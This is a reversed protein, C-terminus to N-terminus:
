MDDNSQLDPMVEPHSSFRNLIMMSNSKQLIVSLTKFASNISRNAEFGRRVARARALKTVIHIATKTLTGMSELSFPLLIMGQRAVQEGMRQLKREAALAAAAGAAEANKAIIDGRVTSSIVVDVLADQYGQGHGQDTFAGLMVDGPRRDSGPVLFRPERVPSLGAESSLRMLFERINDHRQIREPGYGCHMAHDANKGAKQNCAPCTYDSDYVPEGLQYKIIASFQESRMFWGARRNPYVNLFGRSYPSCLANIRAAERPSESVIEKLNQLRAQDIKHSLIKQSTGCLLDALTIEEGAAASLAALVAPKLLRRAAVEAVDTQAEGGDEHDAEPGDDPDGAEAGGRGDEDHRGVEPDDAEAGGRGDEDEIHRNIEDDDGTESGHRETQDAGTLAIILDLSSIVSASYAATQHDYANRLGLGSCSVPLTAQFHGTNSLCCGLLDNLSNRTVADFRHLVEPHDLCPVTRLLYGMKTIALTSRLLCYQTQSEQLRPLLETTLAIKDVADTLFQKTFAPSGVVSGLIKIGDDHVLRTGRGLPDTDVGAEFGRARWLKTKGRGAGVTHDTSLHMGRAPGLETIIDLAARLDETNGAFCGDDMMFIALKLGAVREAIREIVPHLCLCYLITAVACGQACGAQSMIEFEGFFLVSEDGYCTKVYELMEPMKEKVAEMIHKRDCQNFASIFDTQCIMLDPDEEVLQRVSHIVAECGSRTGVGVQLPRFMSAAKDTLKRAIAKGTVRRLLSGAAVPRLGGDRKPVGFLSASAFLHRIQQPVHGGAVKNVLRTVAALTRDRRGLAAESLCVKYHEPRHGCAGPSSGNKLTLIAKKVEAASLLIQPQDTTLVPPPDARPHLDLMKRYNAETAPALGESGFQQMAKRYQGDAAYMSARRANYDLQEEATSPVKRRAENKRRAMATVKVADRWLQVVEGRRWRRLRERIAQTQSLGSRRIRRDKPVAPLICFPFLYFLCWNTISTMDSALRDCVSGFERSFEGATSPPIHVITPKYMRFIEALDPLSEPEVLPQTETADQTHQTDTDLGPGQSPDPAHGPPLPRAPGPPQAPGPPDPAPGAHDDPVDQDQDLDSGHLSPAATAPSPGPSSPPTTFRPSFGTFGPSVTSAPSVAAAAPGAAPPTAPPATDPPGPPSTQAAEALFVDASTTRGGGTGTQKGRGGDRARGGGGPARVRPRSRQSPRDDDKKEDDCERYRSPPFRTRSGKRRAPTETEM